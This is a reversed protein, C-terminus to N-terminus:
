NEPLGQCSIPPLFIELTEECIDAKEALIKITWGFNEANVVCLFVSNLPLKKKKVIM